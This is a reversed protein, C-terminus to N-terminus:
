IAALKWRCEADLLVKVQDWIKLAQGLINNIVAAGSMDEFSGRSWIQSDSYVM